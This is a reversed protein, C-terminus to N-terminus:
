FTPFQEFIADEIENGEFGTPSQCVVDEVAVDLIDVEPSNYTQNRKM